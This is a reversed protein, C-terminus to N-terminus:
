DNRKELYHSIEWDEPDEWFEEGTEQNRVMIENNYEDISMVVGLARVRQVIDYKNFMSAKRTVKPEEKEPGEATISAGPGPVCPAGQNVTYFSYPSETPEKYELMIEGLLTKIEAFSEDERVKLGRCKRELQDSLQLAKLLKEKM